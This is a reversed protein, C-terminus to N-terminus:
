NAQPDEPGGYTFALVPNILRLTARYMSSAPLWLTPLSAAPAILWTDQKLEQELQGSTWGSHGLVAAVSAHPADASLKTADEMSIGFVGHMGPGKPARFAAWFMLRNPHVPGGWLMPLGSIAAFREPKEAWKGLTEGAMPRNLIIGMAGDADHISIYVLAEKFNADQMSPHAVLVSGALSLPQSSGRRTRHRPTSM